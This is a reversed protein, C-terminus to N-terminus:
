PRMANKDRGPSKARSEYLAADSEVAATKRAVNESQLPVARHVLCQDVRSRSIVLFLGADGSKATGAIGAIFAAAIAAIVLFPAALVIIFWAYALLEM